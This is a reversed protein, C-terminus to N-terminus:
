SVREAHKVAIYSKTMFLFKERVIECDPFLEQMETYTLLRLEGVMRNVYDQSPRRILGWVSFNRLLNRQWKKPLWHMFPTIYHPEIFFERAPTQCWISQGVRAIEKAFKMQSAYDGVHEIVSNSYAVEFDNDAYNLATADGIVYTFQDCKHNSELINLLTVSGDYHILKWNYETGGIDLIPSDPNPKMSHMFKHMRKEIFPKIIINLLRQHFKARREHINM